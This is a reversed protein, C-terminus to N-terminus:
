GGVGASFEFPLSLIYVQSYLAEPRPNSEGRSWWYGLALRDRNAKKRGAVGTNARNGPPAKRVRAGDSRRKRGSLAERNETKRQPGHHSGSAVEKDSLSKSVGPQPRLSGQLPSRLLHTLGVHFLGRGRELPEGLPAGARGAVQRLVQAKQLAHLVLDLREFEAELTEEGVRGTM